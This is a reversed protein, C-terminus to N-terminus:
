AIILYGRAELLQINQQFGTNISDVIVLREKHENDLFNHSYILVDFKMPGGSVAVDGNSMVLVCDIQTPHAKTEVLQGKVRSLMYQEFDCQPYYQLRAVALFTQRVDVAMITKVM